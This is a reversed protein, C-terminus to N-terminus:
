EWTVVIGHKQCTRKIASVNTKSVEGFLHIRMQHNPYYQGYDLIQGLAERWKKIHKVEIIETSTLVDIRGGPITVETQGGLSKALKDRYYSEPKSKKSKQGSSNQKIPEKKYNPTDVYREDFLGDPSFITGLFDQAFSKFKARDPALRSVTKKVVNNRNKLM